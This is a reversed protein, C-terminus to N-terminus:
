GICMTSTKRCSPRGSASRKSGNLKRSGIAAIGRYWVNHDSRRVVCIRGIGTMGPGNM